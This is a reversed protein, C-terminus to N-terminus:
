RPKFLSVNICLGRVSDCSLLSYVFVLAIFGPIFAPILVNEASLPFCASQALISIIDTPLTNWLISASVDFSRRGVTALRHAPVELRGSTSSRLNRHSPSNAVWRMTNLCPVRQFDM